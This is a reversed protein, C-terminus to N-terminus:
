VKYCLFVKEGRALGYLSVYPEVATYEEIRFGPAALRERVDSGFYRVHDHQGFYLIRSEVSGLKTQDEFSSSWGEIVPMMAILLGNPKVIRWLEPIALADNVHELVHSCYVLDFREDPLDIHEINIKLDAKPDMLDGTVYEGPRCAQIYRRMGPEPALHLISREAFLHKERDCLVLLRHRGLSLCRPCLADVMVGLRLDNGYAFFRGRHGCVTCERPFRGFFGRATRYGYRVSRVYPRLRDIVPMMLAKVSDHLGGFM